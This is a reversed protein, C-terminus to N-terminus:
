GGYELYELLCKFLKESIVYHREDDGFDFALAYYLRNMAFAEEKLKDFWERKIQISSSVSTKTKCEILFLDNSVDGKSFATAGSNPSQKGRVTKAVKKEQKSSYYRTPKM